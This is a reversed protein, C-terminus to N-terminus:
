QLNLQVVLDRRPTFTFLCRLPTGRPRFVQNPVGTQQPQIKMGYPNLSSALGNAKGFITMWTDTPELRWGEKTVCKPNRQVMLDGTGLNRIAVGAMLGGNDLYDVVGIAEIGPAKSRKMGTAQEIIDLNGSVAETTAEQGMEFAMSNMKALLARFAQPSPAQVAVVTPLREVLAKITEASSELELARKAESHAAVLDGGGEARIAALYHGWAFNPHKELLEKSLRWQEAGEQTVLAYLYMAVPDNPSSALQAKYEADATQANAALKAKATAELKEVNPKCASLALGAVLMTLTALSPRGGRRAGSVVKGNMTM